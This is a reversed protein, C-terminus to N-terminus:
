PRITGNQNYWGGQFFRHEVMSHALLYFMFFLVVLFIVRGFQYLFYSSEVQSVRRRMRGAVGNHLQISM